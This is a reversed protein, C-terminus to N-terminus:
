KSKNEPSKEEMKETTTNSPIKEFLQSVKQYFDSEVITKLLPFDNLSIETKNDGPKVGCIFNYGINGYHEVTNFTEKTEQPFCISGVFGAGVSTYLLRKFFGGRLGLVLGSLGGIGVAGVRPLFNSKDQLYDIVFNFNEVALSVNHSVDDYVVKLGQVSQRAKRINEEVISPQEEICPMQKSQGDDVSYIPLDSPKILKKPQTENSCPTTQEKQPNVPKMVPVAACLGCPMLFKKFLLNVGLM